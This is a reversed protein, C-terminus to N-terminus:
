PQAAALAEGVGKLAVAPSGEVLVRLPRTPRPGAAGAGAHLGDKDIGNRVYLCARSAAARAALQDAIWRAETIFALPLDHTLVAAM